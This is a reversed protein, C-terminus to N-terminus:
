VTGPTAPPNPHYHVTVRRLYEIKSHLAREVRTAIKDGEAVSLSGDVRIVVDVLLYYGIRHVAIEELQAVGEVGRVVDYLQRTEEEDPEVRMLEGASELIISLGTYFIVIAVVAAAAPDFWFYGFQSLVIGGIAVSISFIDNRHDRALAHVAISGTRRAIRFSYIMLVIKLVLTAGAIWLTWPSIARHEIQGDILKWITEVGGFFVFLGTVMIFAGIVVAAIDELQRHGCPHEQDPPKRAIRMFTRVIILYAVDSTSNIGDALLARSGGVIGVVTKAVALLVNVGLSINVVLMNQWDYHFQSTPEDINCQSQETM